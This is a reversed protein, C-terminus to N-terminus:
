DIIIIVIIFISQLPEFLLIYKLVKFKLEKVTETCQIHLFARHRRRTQTISNNCFFNM